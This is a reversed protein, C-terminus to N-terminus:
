APLGKKDLSRAVIKGDEMQVTLHEVDRGHSEVILTALADEVEKEVARRLNRAGYKESYSDEVLKQVVGEGVTLTRGNQQVAKQLDDLMIGAIKVFDEKSLPRFAVIEDVRNIFEPRLFSELAKLAKERSRTETTGGFGLPAERRESGANSTMVIVTNEFNVTRGHSDTVRGDDLIQLLVNLVDPHAKEIEDFLIVCYPKRRVKETLQGAEDYGVYGPPSGILRSVSHKEM